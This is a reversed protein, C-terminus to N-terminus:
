HIFIETGGAKETIEGKCVYLLVLWMTNWLM